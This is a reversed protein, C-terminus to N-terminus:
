FLKTVKMFLLLINKLYTSQSSEKTSRGKGLFVLRTSVKSASVVSMVLVLRAKAHCEKIQITKMLSARAEYTNKTHRTILPFPKSFYFINSACISKPWSITPGVYNTTVQINDNLFKHVSFNVEFRYVIHHNSMILLRPAIDQM